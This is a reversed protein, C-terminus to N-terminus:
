RRSGDAAPRSTTSRRASPAAQSGDPRSLALARLYADVDEQECRREFLSASAEAANARAIHQDVLHRLRMM